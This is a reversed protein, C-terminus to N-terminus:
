SADREAAVSVQDGAAALVARYPDPIGVGSVGEAWRQDAVGLADLTDREARVSVSQEAATGIARGPEPVDVGALRDTVWEVVGAGDVRDGEAGVPM